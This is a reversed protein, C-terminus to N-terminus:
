RYDHLFINNIYRIWFCNVGRTECYVMTYGNNKALCRFACVSGGHYNSGDWYLIQDPKPKEITVCRDAPQQNIEHIVIKPRYQTLVQEVIWYDAYDTDESFLDLEKPVDYKEFLELINSYSISEQRKNIKLNDGGSGDMMLGKWNYKERLIRTNTQSGDEVGFEVYTGNKLGLFNILSLTVGDEKNQSYIHEEKISEYFGKIKTLSLDYSDYSDYSDRSLNNYHIFSFILILLLLFIILKNIVKLNIFAQIRM